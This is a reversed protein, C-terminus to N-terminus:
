FSCVDVAGGPVADFSLASRFDGEAPVRGMVLGLRLCTKKWMEFHRLYSQRFRQLTESDIQSRREAATECDVFTVSGNWSPSSEELAFPVFILGQGKASCFPSIVDEPSEDYLLDSIFVRLAGQHWKICSLNPVGQWGIEDKLFSWDHNLVADISPEESADSKSVLCRVQVGLSRASEVCFYFLEFTRKAKKDTVFMSESVDLVLDLCPSVEARFLKMMYQGTRAYARWDIYRPDDGPVYARYDQFDVSTGTGVGAWNGQQGRWLNSHFPLRLVQAVSSMELHVQRLFDKSLFDRM